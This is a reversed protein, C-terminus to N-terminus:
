AAKKEKKEKKKTKPEPKGSVATFNEPKKVKTKAPKEKPAAVQTKAPPIYAQGPKAEEKLRAKEMADATRADRQSAERTQAAQGASRADQVQVSTGGPCPQQSYADGCRYVQQAQAGFVAAAFAGAVCVTTMTRM